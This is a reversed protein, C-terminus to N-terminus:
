FTSNTNKLQRMTKNLKFEKRENLLKTVLASTPKEVCSGLRIPTLVPAGYSYDEIYAFLQWEYPYAKLAVCNEGRVSFRNLVYTEQYGGNPNDFLIEQALKKGQPALINFGWSEVNNRWFPNILLFLRDKGMAKNIERIDKLYKVDTNPFVLAQVDGSPGSQAQATLLASGDFDWVDQAKVKPPLHGGKAKDKEEETQLNTAIARVENLLAETLPQGAERYMQKAGGPWEEEEDSISGNEKILALRVTQRTIGDQFAREIALAAQGM